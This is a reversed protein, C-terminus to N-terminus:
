YRGQAPLPTAVLCRERGNPCARDIKFSSVPKGDADYNGVQFTDASVNAAMFGHGSRAFRLDPAEEKLAYLATGGAGNIFQFPEGDRVIVQQNHDHGSLYLDVQADRMAPLIIAAVGPVTDRHAGYSRIPHHGVVMRWVPADHAGDVGGFKNRIFEAEKALEDPALSTDIFVVRLLPRGQFRGFDASYYYDPMRWRNSGAHQRSYEIQAEALSHKAARATSDPARDGAGHDHNGLVAYYPVVSLYTGAYVHEFRSRWAPDDMPLVHNGYFNDGMLVVFDLQRREEALAEMGHAVQWQRYSGGGQDGLAFFVLSETREPDSPIRYVPRHTYILFGIGAAVVVALLSGLAARSAIKM